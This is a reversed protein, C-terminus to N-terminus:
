QTAVEPILTNAKVVQPDTDVDAEENVSEMKDFDDAPVAVEQASVQATGGQQADAKTIERQSYAFLDVYDYGDIRLYSDGGWVPPINQYASIGKAVYDAKLKWGDNKFQGTTTDVPDTNVYLAM